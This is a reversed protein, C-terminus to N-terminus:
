VEEDPHLKKHQKVLSEVLPAFITGPPPQMLQHALIADVEAVSDIAGGGSYMSPIYPLHAVELVAYSLAQLTMVDNSFPAEERMAIYNRNVRVFAGKAWHGIPRIGVAFMADPSKQFNEDGTEAIQIEVNSTELHEILGQTLGVFGAQLDENMGLARLNAMIQHRIRYDEERLPRDSQASGPYPPSERIEDLPVYDMCWQNKPNHDYQMAGESTKEEKTCNGNSHFKCTPEYCVIDTGKSTRIFETRPLRGILSFSKDAAEFAEKFGDDDWAAPDYDEFVRMLTSLLLVDNSQLVVVRETRDERFRRYDVFQNVALSAVREGLDDGYQVFDVKYDQREAGAM